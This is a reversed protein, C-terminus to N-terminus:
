HVDFVVRFGVHGTALGSLELAVSPAATVVHRLHWTTVTDGPHEAAGCHFSWDEGRDPDRERAAFLVPDGDDVVHRCVFALTEAPAPLSWVPRPALPGTRASPERWGPPQRRDLVAPAGDQWAFVGDTDPWVLQVADPRRRHFWGSWTVTERLGADTMAEVVLPVRALAGEVTRGPTDFRHGARVRGAVDNLVRHVLDTPLGSMVLEPHRARHHLGVTYAFAPEDDAEGAGVLMVQWGADRVTDVCRQEADDLPGPRCLRCTCGDVPADDNWTGPAATVRGM